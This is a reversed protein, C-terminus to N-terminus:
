IHLKLADKINLYYVLKTRRGRDACTMNPSYSTKTVLTAKSLKFIYSIGDELTNVYLIEDYGFKEKKEMLSDYKHKELLLESDYLCTLFTNNIRRHKHEVLYRNGNFTASCDNVSFRDGPFSVDFKYGKKSLKEFIVRLENNGNEATTNFDYDM